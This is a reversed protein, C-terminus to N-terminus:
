PAGAPWSGSRLQVHNSLIKFAFRTFMGTMGRRGRRRGPIGPLKAKPDTDKLNEGDPLRADETSAPIRPEKQPAVPVSFQAMM